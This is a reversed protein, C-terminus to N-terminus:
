GMGNADWASAEKVIQLSSSTAESLVGYAERLSDAANELLAKREQIRDQLEKVFCIHRLCLVSATGNVAIEETRLRELQDLLQRSIELEQRLYDQHDNLRDFDVSIYM